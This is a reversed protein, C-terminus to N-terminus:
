IRSETRLLIYGSLPVLLVLLYQNNKNADPITNHTFGDLLNHSNSFVDNNNQVFDFILFTPISYKVIDLNVNLSQKSILDDTNSNDIIQKPTISSLTIEDFDFKINDRIRNPYIRELVTLKESNHKLYPIINYSKNNESILLTETLKIIKTSPILQQSINSANLEDNTM